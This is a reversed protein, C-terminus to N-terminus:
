YDNEDEEIVMVLNNFIEGEFTLESFLLSKKTDVTSIIHEDSISGKEKYAKMNMLFPKTTLTINKIIEQWDDNKDQELESGINYKVKL